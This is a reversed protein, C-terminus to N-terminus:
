IALGLLLRARFEQMDLCCAHLRVQHQRIFMFLCVLMAWKRSAADDGFIGGSPLAAM